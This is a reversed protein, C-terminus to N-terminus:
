KFWKKYKSMVAEHTRFKGKRYQSISKKVSSKQEESLEDWLNTEKKKEM